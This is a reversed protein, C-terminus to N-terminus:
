RPGPRPGRVLQRDRAARLVAAGLLGVVAWVLLYELLAGGPVGLWATVLRGGDLPTGPLERVSVTVAGYWSLGLLAALVLPLARVPRRSGALALAFAAPALLTVLWYRHRAALHSLDTAHLHPGSVLGHVVAWAPAGAGVGLGAVALGPLDALLGVGDRPHGPLEGAALLVAAVVAATGLAVVLVGAAGRPVPALVLLTVLAAWLPPALLSTTVHLPAHAGPLTPRGAEAAVLALAAATIAAPARRPRPPRRLVVAFPVLLLLPAARVTLTTFGLVGAPPGHVSVTARFAAAVGSAAAAAVAPTHLGALLVILAATLYMATLAVAARRM